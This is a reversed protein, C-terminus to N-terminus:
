DDGHVRHGGDEVGIEVGEIRRDLLQEVRRQAALGDGDAAPDHQRGGVLGLREAHAAAHRPPPRAFEARVEDEDAPVELVVLPQAVGRDVHQAVERGQDFADGDVLSEGIDGSARMQETRRGLDGGRNPTAHPGFDAQRDRDAHCTGLM